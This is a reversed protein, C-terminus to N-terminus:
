PSALANMPSLVSKIRDLVEHLKPQLFFHDGEFWDVHCKTTVERQWAEVQASSTHEDDRGALVTLPINLPASPSYHYKEALAFDARITPLVLEMLDRNQLLEPPTGNYRQLEKILAADHMAHLDRTKNRMQPANCGSVILQEPMAQTQRQCHRALEFAILAGLSHGFFAFPLTNHAKLVAAIANVLDPMSTYPAESFRAGRGPLQVACVEIDPGLAEQWPMFSAASGGAYSFCFLRLRPREVRLRM